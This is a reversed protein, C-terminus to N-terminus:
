RANRLAGRKGDWTAVFDAQALREPHDRDDADKLPIVRRGPLRYVARYYRYAYDPQFKPAPAEIAISSGPPTRRHVEVLFADYPLLTRPGRDVLRGVFEFDIGCAVIAAFLLGAIFRV